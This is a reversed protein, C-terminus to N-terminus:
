GKLTQQVLKFALETKPGPNTIDAAIFVDRLERLNLLRLNENNKLQNSLKECAKSPKITSIAKEAEQLLIQSEKTLYPWRGNNWLNDWIERYLTNESSLPKGLNLKHRLYASDQLINLFSLVYHDQNRIQFSKESVKHSWHVLFAPDKTVKEILKNVVYTEIYPIGQKTLSEAKPETFVVAGKDGWLKLIQRSVYPDFMDLKFYGIEQIKKQNRTLKVFFEPKEIRPTDDKLYYRLDHYNDRCGASLAVYGEPKPAQAPVEPNNKRYMSRSLRSTELAKDSPTCFDVLQYGRQSFFERVQQLCEPKRNGIVYTLFYNPEGNNAWSDFDNCFRNVDARNYAIGVLPRLLPLFTKFNRNSFTAAPVLSDQGYPQRCVFLQSPRMGSHVALDRMLKRLVTKKFWNQWDQAPLDRHKRLSQVLGRTLYGYQVLHDLRHNFDREQITPSRSHWHEVVSAALDETSIFWDSEGGSPQFNDMLPDFAHSLLLGQKGQQLLTETRKQILTMCTNELERKTYDLFRTLLAKISTLTKAQMSLSERSPTVSISHPDAQLILRSSKRHGVYRMSNLLEMIRSNESAYEAHYPVPYIVNGYRIYIPEPLEDHPFAGALFGHQSQSLPLTELREENLDVLMEGYKAIQRVLQCFRNADDRYKLNIRVTLGHEKTPVQAVLTIGPKGEIEASSKSLSYISKTGGFCSVVEFHDTYAFPAKCGLGFGGTQQGDNKKTSAGYVGYIPGMDEHAIGTGFDQISLVLDDCKVQIPVDTCGAAIHADWANCLTERVVALPQNSYLTSSLIHFFEASSSIGFDITEHSSIVAHTVKDMVNSVQM